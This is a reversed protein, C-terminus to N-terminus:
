RCEVCKYIAVDVRADIVTEMKYREQFWEEHVMDELIPRNPYRFVLYDPQYAHVYWAYDQRAVHEGVDPTVLGLADIIRGKSYFYGIVGIENTAVSAGEPAHHNLWQAAQAYTEYKATVRRSLNAVPLLAALAFAAVVVCLTYQNITLRKKLWPLDYALEPVLGYVLGLGIALPTYYWPYPPPNLVVAYMLLLSVSWVLILVLIRYKLWRRDFTLYALSIVLGFFVPWKLVPVLWATSQLGQLFLFGTGWRGSQTQGLKVSLTTPVVDGFYAFSLIVWPAIVMLFLAFTSGPPLERRQLVYDTALIIPVILSDPRSLVALGCFISVWNLNGRQYFFFALVILALTLFTEMGVANYVLPNGLFLLPFVFPLVRLGIDAFLKASVLSILALSLAGILHGVTPLAMGPLWNFLTHGVALLLTYLPSTTANVFEGPNFVYGHGNAINAAYTYFIYADDQQNNSYSVLLLLVLLLVSIRFFLNAGKKELYAM